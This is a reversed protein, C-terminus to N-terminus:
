MEYIFVISILIENILPGLLNAIDIVPIDTVLVATKQILNRPLLVLSSASSSM